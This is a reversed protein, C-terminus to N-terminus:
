FRKLADAVDVFRYTETVFGSGDRLAERRSEARERDEPTTDAKRREIWDYYSTDSEKLITQARDGVVVTKPPGSALRVVQKTNYETRKDKSRISFTPDKVRGTPCYSIASAIRDLAADEEKPRHELARTPGDPIALRTIGRDNIADLLARHDRDLIVERRAPWFDFPAHAGFGRGYHFAYIEPYVKREVRRSAKAEYFMGSAMQILHSAGLGGFPEDVVIGFRDHEAWAPFVFQCTAPHGIRQVELMEPTVLHTMHM